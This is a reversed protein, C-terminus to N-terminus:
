EQSHSEKKKKVYKNYKTIISMFTINKDSSNGERLHIM